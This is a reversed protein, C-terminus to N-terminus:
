ARRGSGTEFASIVAAMDLRGGGAALVTEFLRRSQSLLPYTGDTGTAAEAVLAANKCVDHIAAQPAFDRRTMKDLKSLAVKSALPGSAIVQQFDEPALDLARALSAAEALAAVSAILYLNVALKMSLASPVAGIAVIDRCMPALLPRAREIAGAEGALMAVLEGAEAPLRSGSVPAEVFSGGVARIDQELRHSFIPAHTGMNIVLRGKMRDGFGPGDRGLVADVAGDNALMLIVTDCGAFLAGATDAVKAGLARLAEAPGPSRNYVTMDFGAACLRGAMPLGM